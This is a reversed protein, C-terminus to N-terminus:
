QLLRLTKGQEEDITGPVSKVELKKLNDNLDSTINNHQLRCELLHDNLNNYM